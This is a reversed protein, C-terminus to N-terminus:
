VYAFFLSMESLNDLTSMFREYAVNITGRGFKETGLYFIGM